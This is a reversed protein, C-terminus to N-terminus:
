FTRYHQFAAHKYPHDIGINSGLNQLTAFIMDMGCGGIKYGDYTNHLKQGDLKRVLPTINVFEGKYIMAVKIFRTMGSQSVHEVNCIFLNFKDKNRKIHAILKKDYDTLETRKM